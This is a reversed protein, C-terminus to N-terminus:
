CPALADLDLRRLGAPVTLAHHTAVIAAGGAQLHEALRTDFLREGASDLAACPEDLLWLRRRGMWVRALALRRRQGQSLRRAPQVALAALGWAQLATAPDASAEADGALRQAFCLNEIASLDANVGNLHGLYAMHGAYHADGPRLPRGQWHLEGGTPQALGALLRLLSTKGSGNAGRLELVEGAQLEFSLGAFVRRGGRRCRLGHASLQM